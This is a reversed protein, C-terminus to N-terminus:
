RPPEATPTAAGFDPPAANTPGSAADQRHIAQGWRRALEREVLTRSYKRRGCCSFGHEFVLLRGAKAWASATKESVGLMGALTKQEVWDETPHSQYAHADMVAM